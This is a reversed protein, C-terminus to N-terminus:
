TWRYKVSPIFPVLKVFDRSGVGQTGIIPVFIAARDIMV